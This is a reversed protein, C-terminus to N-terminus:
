FISVPRENFVTESIKIRTAMPLVNGQRVYREASKSEQGYVKNLLFPTPTVNFEVTGDGPRGFQRITLISADNLVDVLFVVKREKTQKGGHCPPPFPYIYGRGVLTFSCVKSIVGWFYSGCPFGKAGERILPGRTNYAAHLSYNNERFNNEDEHVLIGKKLHGKKLQEANTM